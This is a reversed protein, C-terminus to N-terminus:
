PRSDGDACEYVYTLDPDEYYRSWTEHPIVDDIAIVQWPSRLAFTTMREGICEARLSGVTATMHANIDVTSALKPVGVHIMANVWGATEM